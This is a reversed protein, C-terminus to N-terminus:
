PRRGAPSPFAMVAALAVDGQLQRLAEIAEGAQRSIEAREAPTLAGDACARHVEKAVDGVEGSVQAMRLPPALPAHAALAQELRASYWEGLAAEHGASLMASDLALAQEISPRREDDPDAWRHILGSSKGVVAAAGEAGLRDVVRTMAAALSGPPRPKIATM